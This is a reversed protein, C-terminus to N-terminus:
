IYYDVLGIRDVAMTSIPVVEDEDFGQGTGNMSSGNRNKDKDGDASQEAGPKQRDSINVDTLTIGSQELMERIRPISSELVDRVAANGSQFVLQAQDGNVALKVELLGLNPPNLRIEASQIKKGAMFLIRDGLESSWQRSQPPVTMGKVQGTRDTSSLPDFGSALNMTSGSTASMEAVQSAQALEGAFAGAAQQEKLMNMANKFNIEENMQQKNQLEPPLNPTRGRGEGAAAKALMEEELLAEDLEVSKEKVAQQAAAVQPAVIESAPQQIALMTEEATPPEEVAPPEETALLEGLLVEEADADDVSAEDSEPGESDARKESEEKSEQNSNKESDGEESSRQDATKQEERQETSEQREKAQQEKGENISENRKEAISSDDKGGAPLENRERDNQSSEKSGMKEKLMGSFSDNDTGKLSIKGSDISFLDGTLSAAGTQAQKPTALLSNMAAEM